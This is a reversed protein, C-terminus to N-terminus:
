VAVAKTEALRAGHYILVSQLPMEGANPVQVPVGMLGASDAERWLGRLVETDTAERAARMANHAAEVLKGPDPALEPQASTRQQREPAAQTAAPPEPHDRDGDDISRGDVPIMLVQLLFYKLAASMAKNTAKDAFDSAEGPVTAELCDGAPGYVRYRMTIRVTTMKEGHREATKEIVEPLIFVGHARMPGAVASMLDDIGRFSYRQSSNVRDKSVPVVDRMVNALATHVRLDTNSM